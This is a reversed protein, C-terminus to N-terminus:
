PTVPFWRSLLGPRGNSRARGVAALKGLDLRVQALTMGTEDALQASTAGDPRAALAAALVNAPPVPPRGIRARVSAVDVRRWGDARKGRHDIIRGVAVVLKAEVLAQVVLYVEARERGTDDVLGATTMPERQLSDLVDAEAETLTSSM